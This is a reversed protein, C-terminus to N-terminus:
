NVRKPLTICTFAHGLTAEPSRYANHILGLFICEQVCYLEHQQMGTIGCIDNFPLQACGPLFMCVQASNMVNSAHEFYFGDHAAM